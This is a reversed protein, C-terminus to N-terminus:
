DVLVGHSFRDVEREKIRETSESVIWGQGDCCHVSTERSVGILNSIPLKSSLMRVRAITSREVIPKEGVLRAWVVTPAVPRSHPDRWYTERETPRTTDLT